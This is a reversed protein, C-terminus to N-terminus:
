GFDLAWHAERLSGQRALLQALEVITLFMVGNGKPNEPAPLRHIAENTSDCNRRLIELLVTTDPKDPHYMLLRAIM